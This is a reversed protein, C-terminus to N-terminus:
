LNLGVANEADKQTHYTGEWEKVRRKHRKTKLHQNLTHEDRFFKDCKDCGFKGEAVKEFLEEPDVNEEKIRDLPRSKFVLQKNYKKTTKTRKARKTAGAM